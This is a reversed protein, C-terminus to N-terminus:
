AKQQQIDQIEEQNALQTLAMDKVTIGALELIKTVVSVEESPHLEFQTSSSANYLAENNVMTYGWKVDTPKKIYDIEILSNTVLETFYPSTTKDIYVNIKSGQRVYIPRTTSPLTLNSSLLLKLNKKTVYECENFIGEIGSSQVYSVTSLKHLASPLDYCNTAGNYGGLSTKFVEFLSIKEELITVADAHRTDNGPRRLYQELDYFYQEFIELQAHNALLNFEQPTVYGRQEKNAITLVKQYVTDVTIAM